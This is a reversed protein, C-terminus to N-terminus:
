RRLDSRGPVQGIGGGGGAVEGGVLGADFVQPEAIAAAVRAAGVAVLLGRAALVVLALRPRALPPASTALCSGVTAARM